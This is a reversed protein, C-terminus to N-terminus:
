GVSVPLKPRWEKKKRYQKCNEKNLKQVFRLGWFCVSLYECSNCQESSM